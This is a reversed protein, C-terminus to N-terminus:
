SVTVTGIGSTFTTIKYGPVTSSDTSASLGAGVNLTLVDPYRLVIVGSGGSQGSRAPDTSAGGGGRASNASASANSNGNGGVARTVSSGTISSSIGSGGSSGSGASGAGGGGGGNNTGANGGNNGMRAIGAGGNGGGSGGSRGGGGNSGGGGGGAAFVPGAFSDSGDNSNASGGAGVRVFLEDGKKLFFPEEDSYGGGSQEGPMSCRYGGAGGGGGRFRGEDSQRSGGGGGGGGAVLFDVRYENGENGRANNYRSFNNITSSSISQIAM